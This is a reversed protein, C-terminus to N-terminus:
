KLNKKQFIVIGVGTAVLILAGDYWAMRGLHESNNMCVRYLQSFPLFQDLFEFCQRKTGTLYRPNKEREVQILEGTQEDEFTYPEYYEPAALRQSITLGAFMSIIVVLLCAVSGIAKSQLSMMLLLLVATLACFATISVGCLPLIESANMSMKGLLLDGLVWVALGNVLLMLSDAVICVILETLYIDRRNHGATLKNRITGDSFETGVFLGVLVPAAFILYLTGAFFLGEATRYEPSLQAYIEANQRVDIWRMVVCFIGLGGAFLMCLRFITSKWLRTFEATLLRNM